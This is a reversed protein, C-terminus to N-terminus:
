EDRESLLREDQASPCTRKINQFKGHVILLSNDNLKEVILFNMWGLSVSSKCCLIAKFGVTNSPDVMLISEEIAPALVSVTIRLGPSARNTM